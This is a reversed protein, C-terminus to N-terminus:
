QAPTAPAPAISHDAFEMLREIHAAKNLAVRQERKADMMKKEMMATEIDARTEEFPITRANKRDQRKIIHFANNLPIVPSIDGDRELAFAAKALPTGDDPMWGLEGGNKMLDPNLNYDASAEAWTKEGKIIQERVQEAQEKTKFTILCANVMAPEQFRARNREYYSSVEEPAVKVQDKVIGELLLETRLRSRLNALTMRKQVLWVAFGDGQGAEAQADMALQLTRVREEVQEDTVTVKAREAAQEIVKAQIIEEFVEKGFWDLLTAQFAQETIPQDNVKAVIGDKQAWAGTSLLVLSFGVAILRKM